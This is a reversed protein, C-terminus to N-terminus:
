RLSAPWVVAACTHIFVMLLALAFLSTLLVLVLCNVPKDLADTDLEQWAM